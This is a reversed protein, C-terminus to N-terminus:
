PPASSEWRWICCTPPEARDRADPRFRRDRGGWDPDAMAIQVAFCAAIVVLLAIIFAEVWRFGKNQMWLILFVDAATIFIGIELPIGFVLNLGIATGIVEALDTAIIAMEALLWLPM